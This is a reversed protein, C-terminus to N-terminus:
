RSCNFEQGDIIVKYAPKVYDYKNYARAFDGREIQSYLKRVEKKNLGFLKKLFMILKEFLSKAEPDVKVNGNNLVYDAFEDALYEEILEEENNGYDKRYKDLLQKYNAKKRFEKYYAQREEPTLYMRFVRHFAEHYAVSDDAMSSLLIRGDETFQGLAKNDILGTVVEVESPSMGLKTTLFDMASKSMASPGQSLARLVGARSYERGNYIYTCSM